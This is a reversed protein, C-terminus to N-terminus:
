PVAFGIPEGRALTLRGGVFTEGDVIIDGDVFLDVRDTDDRRYGGVAPLDHGGLLAPLIAALRKPHADITLLKLGARPVGFPRIGLPLHELTSAFLVYKAGTALPADPLAIRMQTGQRWDSASGGFLTQIVAGAVSLGVALGNFAGFRHTQQALTTARVFAGAGIIFGQLESGADRTIRVPSRQVVRGSRLAAIAAGETWDKPIGLDAALANTKGSPLVAIRRLGKVFHRASASLVDRVTGDGGNIVLADVGQAAFSALAADLEAHSRPAICSADLAHDLGDRGVNRRAKGNRVIAIRLESEADRRARDLPVFLPASKVDPRRLTAPSVGEFRLTADSMM